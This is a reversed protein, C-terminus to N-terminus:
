LRVTPHEIGGGAVLKLINGKYSMPLATGQLPARLHNSEMWLCWLKLTQPHPINITGRGELGYFLTQNGEDAGLETYCLQYNRGGTLRFTPPELGGVPAM